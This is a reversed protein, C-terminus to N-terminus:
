RAFKARLEEMRKRNTGLDGYGIRSASRFQITQSANDIYFEVDDVFHMLATRTEVQIYNGDDALLKTRPMQQLLTLLRAKAEGATGTFPIPAISHESDSVAAQTSVCNPSAPCPAFKQTDRNFSSKASTYWSNAAMWLIACIALVTFVAVIRLILTIMHM